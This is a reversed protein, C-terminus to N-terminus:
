LLKWRGMIIDPIQLKRLIIAIVHESRHCAMRLSGNPTFFDWIENSQGGKIVCGWRSSAVIEISYLLQHLKPRYRFNCTTMAISIITSFIAWRKKIADIPERSHPITMSYNMSDPSCFTQKLDVHIMKWYFLRFIAACLDRSVKEDQASRHLARMWHDFRWRMMNKVARQICLFFKAIKLHFFNKNGRRIKESWKLCCGNCHFIGKTSM